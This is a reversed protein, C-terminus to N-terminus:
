TENESEKWLQEIQEDGLVERVKQDRRKLRKLILEMWRARAGNVRALTGYWDIEERLHEEAADGLKVGGRLPWDLWTRAARQEIGRTDDTGTDSRQCKHRDRQAARRIAEWVGSELMQEVFLQQLAASRRIRKRLLEAAPAWEGAEDLCDTAARDIENM